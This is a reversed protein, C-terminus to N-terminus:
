KLLFKAADFGSNPHQRLNNNEELMTEASWFTATTLRMNGVQFKFNAAERSSPRQHKSSKGASPV